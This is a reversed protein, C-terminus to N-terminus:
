RTDLYIQLFKDYDNDYFQKRESPMEEWAKKAEDIYVAQNKFREPAPKPVVSGESPPSRNWLIKKINALLVDAPALDPGSFGESFQKKKRWQEEDSM